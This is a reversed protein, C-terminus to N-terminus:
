FYNVSISILNLAKSAEEIKKQQTTVEDLLKKVKNEVLKSEDERKEVDSVTNSGIEYRAVLNTKAL